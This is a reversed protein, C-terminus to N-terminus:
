KGMVILILSLSLMVSLALCEQKYSFLSFSFLFSFLSFLFLFLFLFLFFSTLISYDTVTIRHPGTIKWARPLLLQMRDGVSIGRTKTSLQSSLSSTPLPNTPSPSRSPSRSPDREKKREREREKKRERERERMGEKEKEWERSRESDRRRQLRHPTPRDMNQSFPLSCNGAREQRPSDTGTSSEGSTLSSLLSFLLSFLSSLHLRFLFFFFSSSKRKENGAPGECGHRPRNCLSDHNCSCVFPKNREGRGRKLEKERM